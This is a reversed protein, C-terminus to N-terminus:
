RAIVVAALIWALAPAGHPGYSGGMMGPGMGYYGNRGAWPGDYGTMGPWPFYFGARGGYACGLYRAGVMRHMARTIESTPGGTMNDLWAYDASDPLSQALVAIGLREYQAPTVRDCDIKGNAPLGQTQRIELLVGSISAGAATEVAGATAAALVLGAVMVWLKM